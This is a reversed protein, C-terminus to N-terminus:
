QEVIYGRWGPAHALNYSDMFAAGVRVGTVKTGNSQSGGNALDEM